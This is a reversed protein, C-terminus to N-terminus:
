LNHSETLINEKGITLTVNYISIMESISKVSKSLFHSVNNSGYTM